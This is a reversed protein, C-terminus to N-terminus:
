RAVQLSEILARFMDPLDMTPAWGLAELKSVDLPLHHEPMYPLGEELEFRVSVPREEDLESVMAAMDAVSCYTAPNAANYCAGKEGRLLVAFIAAVADVTYLYMRTSQATTKLVIDQGKIVSKAFLAFVRRDDWTVGPGFTQALRLIKANVDYESAYDVCLNETMRKAESYCSRVSLPQVDGCMEETLLRKMGPEPFGQGYVEMSSLFVVSRADCRRAQDLVWNTGDIATLVTEVPHSVFFESATPSGAHVAYDFAVDLGEPRALDGELISLGDDESFGHFVRQAKEANRAMAIVGIPEVEPHARNYVLAAKACLSGILGTSGTVLLRRGSLESFGVSESAVLEEITKM